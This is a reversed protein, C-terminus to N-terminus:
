CNHPAASVPQDRGRCAAEAQLQDVFGRWDDDDLLGTAQVVSLHDVFLYYPTELNPNLRLCAGLGLPWVLPRLLPDNTVEPFPQRDLALPIIRLSVGARDMGGLLAKLVPLSAHCKPCGAGVFVLVAPRGGLSEPGVREAGDLSRGAFGPLPRGPAPPRSAREQLRISGAFALVVAGLIVARAALSPTAAERLAFAALCAAVLTLSRALDSASIRRPSPGFCSCSILRGRALAMGLVATFGLFLGLAAILARATWAGGAVLGAAAAAEAALIAGAAPWALADPVRALRAVAARFGALDRAKGAVAAALTVLVYLRCAEAAYGAGAHLAEGDAAWANLV